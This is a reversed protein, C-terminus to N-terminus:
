EYFYLSRVVVVVVVDFADAVIINVVVVGNMTIVPRNDYQLQSPLFFFKNRVRIIAGM